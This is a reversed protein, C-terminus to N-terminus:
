GRQDVRTTRPWAPGYWPQTDRPWFSRVGAGTTVMVLSPALAAIRVSITGAAGPVAMLADATGCPVPQYRSRNRIPCVARVSSMLASPVILADPGAAQLVGDRPHGTANGTGGSLIGAM